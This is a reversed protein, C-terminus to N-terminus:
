VSAGAFIEYTFALSREQFAIRQETNPGIHGADFWEVEISKGAARAAAEYARFQGPPCRSDNSGQFVLLPADLDGVYTIPSARRYVDPKADPPGEFIQEEYARLTGASEEYMRVWDAVAVYAVGGAWLDPRRGLGLLTLYGGYSGGTLVIGRPQAIGEEVLWSATAALDEIEWHGLDGWIAQQYKRGFTISGRYNLSAVAYGHDVWSAISPAYGETTVAEPGGHVHLITSFPGDVDPTVVWAQVSTGDSSPFSVSRWAYAAPADPDTLIARAGDPGLSLVSPPETARDRLVVVGDSGFAAGDLVSGGGTEIREGADTELDFRWLSEVARDSVGLLLWRGDDSLDLIEVDGEVALDLDRRHGTGLDWLLPRDRGSVNSTAAVRRDGAVPSAIPRGMSSPAGDWLSAVEHGSEVDIAVLATANSGTPGSSQCVITDGEATFAITVILGPSTLLRVPESGTEGPRCAWLATGDDDSVVMVVTEGDDSAAIVWSSYPLMSPTLDLAPGGDLLRRTWHGVENGGVDDLAFVHRGDPSIAAFVSGAPANTVQQLEGSRLDLAYAQVVGTADGLILARDRHRRAVQLGYVQPRRYRQKWTADESRNPPLPTV